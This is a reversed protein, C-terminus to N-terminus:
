RHPANLPQAVTSGEKVQTQIQSKQQSMSIRM